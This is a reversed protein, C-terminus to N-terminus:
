LGSTAGFRVVLQSLMKLGELCDTPSYNSEPSFNQFAVCLYVSACVSVSVSARARVCVCVCVCVCVSARMCLFWM